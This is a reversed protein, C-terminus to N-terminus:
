RNVAPQPFLGTANDRLFKQIADGQQEAVAAPLGAPLGRVLTTLAEVGGLSAGLVIIDRTPM